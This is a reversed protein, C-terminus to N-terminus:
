AKDEMKRFLLLGKEIRLRDDAADKSVSSLVANWWQSNPASSPTLTLLIFDRQALSVSFM